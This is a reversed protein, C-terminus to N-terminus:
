AYLNETSLLAYGTVDNNALTACNVIWACVYTHTLIM